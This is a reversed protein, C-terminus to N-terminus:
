RYQNKIHIWEINNSSYIKGSLDYEELYIIRKCSTNMILKICHICPSITIYINYIDKINPCQLLANQEAHVANCLELDKTSESYAGKCPKNICHEMNKPVGNYGTSLIHNDSNTIVCGVKRRICTGRKAVVQAIELFWNDISM